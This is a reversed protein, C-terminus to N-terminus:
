KTPTNATAAAENEKPLEARCVPCSGQTKLWQIICEPHYLHKCRLRVAIEGAALEDKCVACSVMEGNAELVDAATLTVRDLAEIAAASAPKTAPVASSERYLRDVVEQFNDGIAYDGLNGALGFMRQLAAGQPGGLLSTILEVL